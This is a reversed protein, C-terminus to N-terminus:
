VITFHQVQDSEESAGSVAAGDMLGVAFCVGVHIYHSDVRHLVVPTDCGFIVCVLDGTQMGPPGWGLYGEETVFLVSTFAISTVKM